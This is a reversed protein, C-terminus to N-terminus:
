GAELCSWDAPQEARRRGAAGMNRALGDDSLLRTAARAVADVDHPDVILGTVGDEVAEAVGGGRGAVVPKGCAGAELYVIGFGEVQGTAPIHRSPMIFVDCAAFYRPAEDPQRFVRGAFIVREQVGLEKALRELRTRDPGEGAVLYVAEPVSAAIQPLARIVADVGKHEVLRAVTLLVKKGQLAHRDRISSGDLDPRFRAADVPPHIVCVRGAPVGLARLLDRTAESNAAIRQAHRLVFRLLPTFGPSRRGRLLDGGHSWVIYPAGFLRSLIFGVLGCPLPQWCEIVDFRWRRHLRLALSLPFVVQSVRKLVRVGAREWLSLSFRRPGGREPSPNPTRPTPWRLVRFAMHCDFDAWGVMEPAIVVIDDPRAACARALAFEQMGGLDPPFAITILLRRTM